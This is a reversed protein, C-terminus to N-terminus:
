DKTVFISWVKWSERKIESLPIGHKYAYNWADLYFEFTLTTGM